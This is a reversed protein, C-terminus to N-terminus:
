TLSESIAEPGLLADGAIKGEKIPLAVPTGPVGLRLQFDAPNSASLITGQLGAEHAQQVTGDTIIVVKQAKGAEALKANITQSPSCNQGWFVLTYEDLHATAESFAKEGNATGFNAEPLPTGQPSINFQPANAQRQQQAQEVSQQSQQNLQVAQDVGAMFEMIDQAGSVPGGAIEGRPSILVASPTGAFGITDYVEQADSAPTLVTFDGYTKKIEEASDMSFIKLDVYDKFSDSWMPIYPKLPACGLCGPSLFLLMQSREKAIEGLTTEEENSTVKFDSIDKGVYRQLSDSSDSNSELAAVRQELENIKQTLEEIHEDYDRSVM